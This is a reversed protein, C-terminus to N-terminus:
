VHETALEQRLEAARAEFRAPWSPDYGSLTVWVPRPGRVLLAALADDSLPEDTVIRGETPLPGPTATSASALVVGEPGCARGSEAGAVDDCIKRHETKVIM